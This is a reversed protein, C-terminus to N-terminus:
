RIEKLSISSGQMSSRATTPLKEPHSRAVTPADIALRREGAAAGSGGGGRQVNARASEVARAAQRVRTSQDAEVGLGNLVATCRM